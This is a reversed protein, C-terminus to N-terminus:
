YVEDCKGGNVCIICLIIINESHVEYEDPNHIDECLVVGFLGNLGLETNLM